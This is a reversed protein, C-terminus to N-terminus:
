RLSFLDVYEDTAGTGDVGGRDLYLNLAGIDHSYHLQLFLFFLEYLATPKLQILVPHGVTKM